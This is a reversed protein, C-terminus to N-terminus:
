LARIKDEQERLKALATEQEAIKDREKRVVAAPAKDVFDPNALKAQTRDLDSQLRAIEKALRKLEADKDILGAMPILVKM